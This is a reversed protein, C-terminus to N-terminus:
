SMKICIIQTLSNFVPRAGLEVGLQIVQIGCTQRADIPNKSNHFTVGVFFVPPRSIHLPHSVSTLLFRGLLQRIENEHSSVNPLRLKNSSMGWFGCDRVQFFEKCGFNRRLEVPHLAPTNCHANIAATTQM